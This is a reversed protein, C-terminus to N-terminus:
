ADLKDFFKAWSKMAAELGWESELKSKAALKMRLREEPEFACRSAKYVMERHDNCLWGTVGDEVQTRWGGRNDVVLISGSAMAEFGVRPLNEYTDTTMIIAECGKYVEQAPFANEPYKLIFEEIKQSKFKEAVNDAWGLCHVEKALPATMAEYVWFQMFGYKDPDARSLRGIRFKDTDRERFFPFKDTKFYPKFMFPQYNGLDKLAKSVKALQHQTQYLHYDIFGKEQMEKEEDFNWTMCNVFTTSKAYKKIKPLNKLFESNCFSICHMGEAAEWDKAKHYICGREEMKMAKQVEDPEWVPLLHVKLGMEHWCDIQHDLETDAGGLPGPHGIVCIEKIM